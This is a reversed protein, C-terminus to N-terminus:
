TQSTFTKRRPRDVLISCENLVKGTYKVGISNFRQYVYPHSTYLHDPPPSQVGAYTRIIFALSICLKEFKNSLTSYMNRVPGSDMM